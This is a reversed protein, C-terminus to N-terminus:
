KCAKIASKISAVINRARYVSLEISHSTKMEEETGVEFLLVCISNLIDTLNMDVVDLGACLEAIKKEDM